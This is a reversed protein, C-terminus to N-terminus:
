RLIVQFFSSLFRTLKQPNVQKDKILKTEKSIALNYGQFLNLVFFLNLASFVVESFCFLLSFQIFNICKSSLM